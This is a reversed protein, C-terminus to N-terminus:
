GAAPAFLFAAGLIGADERLASLRLQTHQETYVSATLRRQLVDLCPVLGKAVGGGLVLVDPCYLYVYQNLARSLMELYWAVAACAAADGAAALRFLAENTVDPGCAHHVYKELSTGSCTSEFCGQMGCYCAPEDLFPYEGGTRVKIHGALHMYSDRGVPRGDEVLGVGVGTGLTLTLSRRAGMAAGCWAEALAILRADNDVRVPAGLAAHLKEALPYGATLFPVFSSMGDISGDAYVYSGISVGAGLLPGQASFRKWLSALGCLFASESGRETPLVAADLVTGAALDVVGAKVRTGGLDFGVALQRASVHCGM